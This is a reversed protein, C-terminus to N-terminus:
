ATDDDDITALGTEDRVSGDSPDRVAKTGKLPLAAEGDAGRNVLDVGAPIVFTTQGDIMEVTAGMERLREALDGLSLRADPDMGAARGLPTGGFDLGLAAKYTDLLAEEEERVHREQKRLTIVKRMTKVHYGRSKAEAFVDKKDLKINKEEEELREVREILLRFEDVAISNHGSPAPPATDQKPKKPKAM